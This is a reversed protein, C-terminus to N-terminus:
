EKRSREEYSKLNNYMKETLSCFLEIESDSLGGLMAQDVENFRCRTDCLVTRGKDTIRIINNRSDEKSCERRIYGETELRKLSNTVAPPSIELFRALEAQSPTQEHRNLYMLLRHQSRHLGIEGVQREIAARHLRDLRIFQSVASHINEKAEM